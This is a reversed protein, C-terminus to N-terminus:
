RLEVNPAGIIALDSVGSSKMHKIYAQYVLIQTCRFQDDWSTFSIKDMVRVMGLQQFSKRM